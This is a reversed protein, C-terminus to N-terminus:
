YAHRAGIGLQTQYHMYYLCAIKDLQISRHVRLVFIIIDMCTYTCNKLGQYKIKIIGLSCMNTDPTTDVSYGWCGLNGFVFM